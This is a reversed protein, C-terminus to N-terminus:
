DEGFGPQPGSTLVQLTKARGGGGHSMVAEHKSGHAISLHSQMTGKLRGHRGGEGRDGNAKTIQSQRFASANLLFLFRESSEQFKNYLFSM